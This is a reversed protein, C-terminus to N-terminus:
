ATKGNESANGESDQLIRVERAAQIALLWYEQRKRSTIEMDELNIGLLYKDDKALVEGGLKIQYEIEKQLEDKIHMAHLGTVTYHVHVNRYLWQGHTIEILSVILGKDWSTPTTPTGHAGWMDLHEQHIVLMEKSIMGEMFRRWGILDQSASLKSYRRGIGHLVDPM